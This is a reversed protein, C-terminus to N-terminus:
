MHALVLKSYTLRIWTLLSDRSYFASTCNEKKRKITANKNFFWCNNMSRQIPNVFFHAYIPNLCLASLLQSLMQNVFVTSGFLRKSHLKISQPRL